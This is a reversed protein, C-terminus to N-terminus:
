MKLILFEGTALLRYGSPVAALPECLYWKPLVLSSMNRTLMLTLNLSFESSNLM